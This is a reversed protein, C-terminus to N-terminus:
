RFSHLMHNVEASMNFKAEFVKSQIRRDTFITNHQEGYSVTSWPHHRASSNQVIDSWLTAFHTLVPRDSDPGVPSKTDFVPYVTVTVDFVDNNKKYNKIRMQGYGVEQVSRLFAQTTGVDTM